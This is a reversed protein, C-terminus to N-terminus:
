QPQSNMDYVTVMVDETGDNTIKVQIGEGGVAAGGTLLVTSGIFAAIMRSRMTREERGFTLAAM